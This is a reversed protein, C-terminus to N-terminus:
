DRGGSKNNLDQLREMYESISVHVAWDTCLKEAESANKILVLLGDHLIDIEKDSFKYTKAM